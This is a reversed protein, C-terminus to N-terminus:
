EKEKLKCCLPAGKNLECKTCVDAGEKCCKKEGAFEGCKGCITKGAVAAQELKCCLPAEKHFGCDPCKEAGDTCCTDSGKYQGCDGCFNTLTTQVGDNTSSTDATNDGGCGLLLFSTLVIMSIQCFWKKM